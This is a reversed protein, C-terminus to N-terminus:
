ENTLEVAKPPATPGDTELIRVNGKADVQAHLYNHLDDPVQASTGETPATSQSLQGQAYAQARAESAARKQVVTMPTGAMAPGAMLAGVAFAALACTTKNTSSM